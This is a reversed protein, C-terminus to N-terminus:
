RLRITTRGLWANWPAIHSHRIIDAMIEVTAYLIGQYIYFCTAPSTDSVGPATIQHHTTPKGSPNDNFPYVCTHFVGPM